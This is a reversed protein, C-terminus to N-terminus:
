GVMYFTELGWGYLYAAMREGTLNAGGYGVANAAEVFKNCREKLLYFDINQGYTVDGTVRDVFSVFTYAGNRKWGRQMMYTGNINMIQRMVYVDNLFSWDDIFTPTFMEEWKEPIHLIHTEVPMDERLVSDSEVSSGYGFVAPQQVMHAFLDEVVHAYAGYILAKDWNNYHERAYLVMDYLKRLNKNPFEGSFYMPVSVLSDTERTIRYPPHPNAYDLIDRKEYLAQIFKRVGAQAELDFLDPLTTGILYFQRVVGLSDGDHILANYFDPDFDRWIDYTKSSIYMHTIIDHALVGKPIIGLFILVLLIHAIKRWVKINKM